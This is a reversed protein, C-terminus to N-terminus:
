DGVAQGCLLSYPCWNCEPALILSGGELLCSGDPCDPGCGPARAIGANLDALRTKAATVLGRWTQALDPGNLEEAGAFVGHDRTLLRGERLIFVGAPPMDEPSQMRGYCALQVGSGNLLKERWAKSGGRKLDIVCGGPVLDPRGKLICGLEEAEIAMDEELSEPSLGSKQLLNMLASASEEAISRLRLRAADQGPQFLPAALLPGQADFINAAERGARGPDMLGQALLHSLVEHLLSGELRQGSPLDGGAGARLEHRYLLLWRLPCSVLRELGTPSETDLQVSFGQPLEWSEVPGPLNSAQRPRKTPAGVLSAVKLSKAGNARAAVEDWLPHPFLEEGADGRAPCVLILSGQAMLLPRRWREALSIAEEGPDPIDVGVGLLARREEQNLPLRDPRPASERTFGWWIVRKAAGAVGGPTGVVSIGAQAELAPQVAVEATADAVARKLQAPSLVELGSVEVLRRLNEVQRLLARWPEEAGEKATSLRGRAWSAVLDARAAVEEAPYREGKVPSAFIAEVRDKVAVRREEPIEDMERALAAQWAKSGVAPWEQLARLLRGALGRSIPGPHLLLLELARQPDPPHWAMELVLPLVQLITNDHLSSAAGTTPLGFLRLARDLALGPSIIVTGELSPFASLWAAIEHAAALPGAPRLLQLSGDGFPSFVGNRAAVLDGGATAPTLRIAEIATGKSELADVVLRWALPLQSRDEFLGLWALDPERKALASAVRALRDAFGPGAGETVKALAELRQSVGEGRWGHLWLRDRWALLRQSTGFPDKQASESWFGENNRVAPVLGAARVADPEAPARLGLCSELRILLGHQGVWAEGATAVRDALPGPWAGRDFELSFTLSTM